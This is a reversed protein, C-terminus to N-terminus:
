PLERGADGVPVGYFWYDGTGTLLSTLRPQRRAVFTRGAVRCVLSLAKAPDMEPVAVQGEGLSVRRVLAFAPLGLSAQHIMALNFILESKLNELGLRKLGKHTAERKGLMRRTLLVLGGARCDTNNLNFDPELKEGLLVTFLEWLDVHALLQLTPQLIQKQGTVNKKGAEAKFPNLTIKMRPPASMNHLIRSGPGTERDIGGTGAM